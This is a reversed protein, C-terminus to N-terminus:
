PLVRQYDAIWLARPFRGALTNRLHEDAFLFHLDTLEALALYTGDYLSCGYMESANWGRVLLRRNSVTRIRLDYFTELGARAQEPAIRARRVARHLAHGTEYNIVVPAYLRVRDAQFDDLNAEAIDVYPEDALQLIWKVVVSADVVYAPVEIM